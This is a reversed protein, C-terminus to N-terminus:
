QIPVTLRLTFGSVTGTASVSGGVKTAREEIGFLGNGRSLTQVGIGDDNVELEAHGGKSRLCISCRAARSHRVVNTTGERIGWALVDAVPAPVPGLSNQCEFAIGASDLISAASALEAEISPRHFGMVVMRLGDLAARAETM